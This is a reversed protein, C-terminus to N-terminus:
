DDRIAMVVFIFLVLNAAIAASIASYLANEFYKISQYYTVLPLVFLLISAALLKIIAIKNHKAILANENTPLTTLSKKDSVDMNTEGSTELVNTRKQIQQPSAM